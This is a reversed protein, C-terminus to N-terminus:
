GWLSSTRLFMEMPVKSLHYLLPAKRMLCFGDRGAHSPKIALGL